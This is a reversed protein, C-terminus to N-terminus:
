SLRLMRRRRKYVTNGADKASATSSGRNERLLLSRLGLRIQGSFPKTDPRSRESFFVDYYGTGRVISKYLVSTGRM